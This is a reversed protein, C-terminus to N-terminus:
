AVEGFRPLKGYECAALFRAEDFLSNDAELVEVLALVTRDIGHQYEKTDSVLDGYRAQRIKEAIKIYDKKSM